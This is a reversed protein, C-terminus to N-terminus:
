RSMGERELEERLARLSRLFRMRAAGESIGLSGAIESFRAGRLLKMALLERQEEPLRAFASGRVGTLEQGYEVPGAGNWSSALAADRARRRGEDAFRRRAVTYLWALPSPADLGFDPLAAAADAFVQQTLEEAR